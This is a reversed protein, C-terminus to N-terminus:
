EEESTTKIAGVNVKSNVAFLHDGLRSDWEVDDIKNGNWPINIEKTYTVGTGVIYSVTTSITGVKIDSLAPASYTTIGAVYDAANTSIM